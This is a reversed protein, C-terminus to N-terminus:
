PVLQVKATPSGAITGSTASITAKVAGDHRAFAKKAAKSLAITDLTAGVSGLEVNASAVTTSALGLAKADDANVKVVVTAAVNSPGTTMVTIADSSLKWAPVKLTLPRALTTSLQNELATKAAQLTSIQGNLDAIQTNLPDTAETVFGSTQVTAKTDAPVFIGNLGECATRQQAITTLNTLDVGTVDKVVPIWQSPLDASMGTASQWPIYNWFPDGQPPSVTYKDQVKLINASTNLADLLPASKTPDSWCTAHTQIGTQALWWTLWQTGTMGTAVARFSSPLMKLNLWGHDALGNSETWAYTYGDNSIVTQVATTPHQNALNTGSSDTAYTYNTGAGQTTTAAVVGHSGGALDVDVPAVQAQNTAAYSGQYTLTYVYPGSGTPGTVLVNAIGTTSSVGISSDKGLANQVVWAPANYPVAPANASPKFTGGTATVTLTQVEPARTVLAQVQYMSPHASAIAPMFAALAAGLGITVAKLFRPM